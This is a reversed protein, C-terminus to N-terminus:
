AFATPPGSKSRRSMGKQKGVERRRWVELFAVMNPNFVKGRRFPPGEKVCPSGASTAWLGLLHFHRDLVFKPNLCIGREFLAM